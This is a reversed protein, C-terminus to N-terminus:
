LAHVQRAEITSGKLAINIKMMRDSIRKVKEKLGNVGMDNRKEEENRSWYLQYGKRLERRGSREM